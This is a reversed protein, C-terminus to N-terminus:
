MVKKGRKQTHDSFRAVRHIVQKHHYFEWNYGLGISKDDKSRLIEELSCVIYQRYPETCTSEKLPIATTTENTFTPVSVFWFINKSQQDHSPIKCDKKKARIGLWDETVVSEPGYARSISKRRSDTAASRQM